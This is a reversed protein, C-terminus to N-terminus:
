DGRLATAPDIRTVRLAPLWCAVAAVGTLAGAATAFVVPDHASVDFLLGSLARGLWLAGITGLGLGWACLVLGRGAVERVVRGSTAGLAMRLALEARRRAVADALVGAVGVAGLVLALAAFLGLLAANLQSQAATARMRASMTQVDFVAQDPDIRRVAERLSATLSSPEGATRVILTMTPWWTWTTPMYMTPTPGARLTRQHVDGVVGIVTRVRGNGLWVRQGIPDAGDAWLRRVVSESLVIPELAPPDADAFVRGRLVPVDLTHFYDSTVIRWDARMSDPLGATPRTPGMEMGSLFSGFPPTSALGVSTVGPLARVQDAVRRYFAGADDPTPYKDSSPNISAILLRDPRFGVDVSLLRALSQALLTAGIVLMTALCFQAVVFAHRLRAQSPESGGRGAQRLADVVDPRSARWAPILGFVVATILTVLLAFLLVSADLTFTAARPLDDALTVRAVQLAAVALAVGGVGGIAALVLSETLVLRTLRAGSAGLARRLALEPARATARTLVLNAVNACAVLLLLGVAALLVKLAGDVDRSVIMETMPRVRARYHENSKPFERGLAEAIRDLEGSAQAVGVGARLRGIITLRRDGRPMEPEPAYPVWVGVGSTFGMEDPVIGIVTHAQGSLRVTRGVLGPDAAYRRRWLGEGLLVVRERGPRDEGDDFVRGAIARVGLTTWLNASVRMGEVREPNGAEAFTYSEERLASIADYSAARERWSLFNPGSVAFVDVNARPQTEVLEVLRAPERFPLPRLLVAHVISFMATTAGIGLALTVVAAITFAPAKRLARWAAHIDRNLVHLHERLATVTIDAFVSAAFRALPIGGRAREFRWQSRFDNRMDRGYEERFAKPYCRLLADYVRAAISSTDPM